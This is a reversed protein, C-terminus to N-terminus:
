SFCSFLLRIDNLSKLEQLEQKYKGNKSDIQKLMKKLVDRNSKFALKQNLKQINRLLSRNEDLSLQLNISLNLNEETKRKLEKESFEKEQVTEKIEQEAVSLQGSLSTIQDSLQDIIKLEEYVTGPIISLSRKHEVGHIKQRESHSKDRYKTEFMPLLYNKVVKAAMQNSIQPESLQKRRKLKVLQNHTQALNTENKYSDPSVFSNRSSCFKQFSKSRM